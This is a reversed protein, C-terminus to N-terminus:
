EVEKKVLKGNSYDYEHGGVEFLVYEGDGSAELLVIESLTPAFGYAKKLERKAIRKLDMKSMIM